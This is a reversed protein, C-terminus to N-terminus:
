PCKLLLKKVQLHWVQGIRTRWARVTHHQDNALDVVYDTTVEFRGFGVDFEITIGGNNNVRLVIYNQKGEGLMQMLIGNKSKTKFGVTIYEELTGLNDQFHTLDIQIM